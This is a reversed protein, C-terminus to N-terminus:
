GVAPHLFRAIADSVQGPQEMPSLHGAGKIIALQSHPIARHMTEAVSPPTIADSEGVIILTPVAISPLNATHDPRDRMAALAQVITEAPCQRMIDRVAGALAPRHAEAGPALMKPMMQDAVADSGRNGALEIMKKRGQKGEPTDGEARTDILILAALDTPYKKAYALAVYGGMSLGALASPLAGLEELLGHVVDALDEMSFAGDIGRSRGFGPLDLSIVRFERALPQRVADWIRADLPFGHVLALPKGAGWEEYHITAHNLTRIPMLM